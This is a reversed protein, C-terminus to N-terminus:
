HQDLAYRNTQQRARNHQGSRRLSLCLLKSHANLETRRPIAIISGVVVSGPLTSERRLLGPSLVLRPLAVLSKLPLLGIAAERIPAAVMISIPAVMVIM